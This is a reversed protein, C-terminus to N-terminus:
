VHARGIESDVNYTIEVPKRRAGAEQYAVPRHQIFAGSRLKAVLAGSADLSLADAGKFAMQVSKPNAGPAVILDYEFGGKASRYVIDIGDYVGRYRVQAYSPVDLHWDSPNAGRYYNTTGSLQHSADSSASPRAGVFRVRLPRSGSLSFDTARLELKAGNLRAVYDADIDFQGVNPEIRLEGRPEFVSRAHSAAACVALCCFILAVFRSSHRTPTM